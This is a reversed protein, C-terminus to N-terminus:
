GERGHLDSDEAERLGPLGGHEVRQRARLDGGVLERPPGALDVEPDRVLDAVAAAGGDVTVGPSLAETLEPLHEAESIVVRAASVERAQDILEGANRRAALSVVQIREPYRKAVALAKRGISGTSGLIAVRRPFAPLTM